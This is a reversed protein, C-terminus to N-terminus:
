QSEEWSISDTNLIEQGFSIKSEIAFIINRSLPESYLIMIAAIITTTAHDLGILARPTAAFSSQFQQYAM